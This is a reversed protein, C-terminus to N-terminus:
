EFSINDITVNWGTAVILLYMDGTINSIDIEGNITKNIDNVDHVNYATFFQSATTQSAYVYSTRVQNTIGIIFPRVNQSNMHDYSDGTIIKYKLKTFNKGSLNVIGNLSCGLQIGTNYTIAINDYNYAINMSAEKYAIYRPTQVVNEYTPVDVTVNYYGDTNSQPPYVGNETFTYNINNAPVDVTLNIPYFGDVNSPLQYHKEGNTTITDELTRIVKEPVEVSVTGLGDYGQDATYTGNTTITKNQLTTEVNVNIEDYGDVGATPTYQGNETITISDLVPQPVNAIVKSFGDKGASPYYTGNETINLEELKAGPNVYIGGSLLTGGEYTVSGNM